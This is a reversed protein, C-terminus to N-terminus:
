AVVSGWLHLPPLTVCVMSVVFCAFVRPKKAAPERTRVLSWAGSAPLEPNREEELEYTMLGAMRVFRVFKEQLVRFVHITRWLCALRVRTCRASRAHCAAPRQLLVVSATRLVQLVNTEMDVIDKIGMAIVGDAGGGGRGSRLGEM